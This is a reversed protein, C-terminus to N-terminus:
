ISLLTLLSDYIMDTYLFCADSELTGLRVMRRRLRLTDTTSTCQPFTPTRQIFSLASAWPVFRCSGQLLIIVFHCNTWLGALSM